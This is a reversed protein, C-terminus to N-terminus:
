KRGVANMGIIDAIKRVDNPDMVFFQGMDTAPTTANTNISINPIVGPGLGYRDIPAPPQASALQIGLGQGVPMSAPGMSAALPSQRMPQTAATPAAPQALVPAPTTAPNPEMGRGGMISKGFGEVVKGFASPREMGNFQAELRADDIGMSRGLAFHANKIIQVGFPFKESAEKWSDIGMKSFTQMADNAMTTMAKVFELQSARGASALQAGITKDTTYVQVAANFQALKFQAKIQEESLEKQQKLGARGQSEVERAHRVQEEFSKLTAEKYFAFQQENLGLQKRSLELQEDIAKTQRLVMETQAEAGKIQAEELAVRREIKNLAGTKKLREQWETFSTRDVLPALRAIDPDELPLGTEMVYQRLALEQQQKQQRRQTIQASLQNALDAVPQLANEQELVVHGM